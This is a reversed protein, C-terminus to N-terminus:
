AGAAQRAAPRDLCLAPLARFRLFAGRVSARVLGPASEQRGGACVESRAYVASYLFVVGACDSRLDAPFLVFAMPGRLM